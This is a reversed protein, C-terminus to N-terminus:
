HKLPKIHGLSNIEFDLGEVLAHFQTHLMRVGPRHSENIQYEGDVYNIDTANRAEQHYRLSIRGYSSAGVNLISMGVVKYLRKQLEKNDEFNLTTENRDMLLVQTGIKLQYRIPLDNKREPAITPWDNRDANYFKAADLSNILEFDRKTRKGVIGEYIVLAYNSDNVVHYQRKYNHRSVDRQQRIHLPKTVQKAYCRVRKIVIGKEENMYIPEAMAKAFGKAKIASQIIKRVTEDVINKIDTEKLLDLPRRVVYKIEGNREIAGYYTDQHLAVRATHGQAPYKGTPTQVARRRTQQPVRDITDHAVLIEQELNKIDETFTPWPKKFQPKKGAEENHYFEGMKGIENAGICAVTIADICHHIHNDRSKKEYQEQIGWLKRFEATLTGKVVRFQNRRDEAKFLSKLYMGAYKSVLGIGAAQRLSFGEPVEKMEFREYKARLYDRQLKLLHKKQILNDKIEKTSAGSPHIHDIQKSLEQVQDKWQQIRPLIPEYGNWQSDYNPCATPLQNRKVERNYRSECLTLNEMTSDGGQSRPVTHEIDFKPNSGIFDALAIEKGTYLCIHKQEEWLLFKTIDDDTATINLEQEIQQAAKKRLDQRAKNDREIAKRKNADNLARAYEIHIETDQDIIGDRLLQNVVQRVKHLSRMAMPNRVSNTIPSGLQYVGLKEDLQADPYTEIVSPDYLVTTEDIYGGHLLEERIQQPITPRPTSRLKAEINVIIEECTDETINADMLPLVAYLYSLSFLICSDLDTLWRSVQRKAAEIMLDGYDKNIKQQSITAYNYHKYVTDQDIAYDYVLIKQILSVTGAMTDVSKLVDFVAKRDAALRPAKALLAAFYYSVGMELFPLIARIAKLSLSAHNNSLTIKSFKEATVEDLRLRNIAFEKLKQESDFFSLVNWIDNEAEDISKNGGYLTHIKERYNEGFVEMLKATTPCGSMSQTMRYNFKYPKDGEDKIYQYKGKGAIAKAVDEFDFNTKSKRFFVPLAKKREEENLFRLSNDYPGQVKVNNLLSLMRFREYAPHSDACRQKNPELTCYGVAHRQSKLPRQFYLARELAKILSPALRQKKCIAYFEQKYHVERDTYRSRLRVCNGQESYLKYYYEGLYTCGAEHMEKTLDAISSKVTSNENNDASQDLRNSLFGRRQVLHYLARGLVYRDAESALDLEETLCRYRYYYPNVMENDSTRQWALFAENKPYIKRTHWANLEEDSVKPCLENEMLVKLTEIKRLRRRFYHRRSARNETREAAKSSEIGKEIKVGEQFIYSGKDILQYSGDQHKEVVAWGLSNTGTDLGLIRKSM